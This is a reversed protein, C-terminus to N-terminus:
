SHNRKIMTDVFDIMMNDRYLPKWIMLDFSCDGVDDVAIDILVKKKFIEKQADSPFSNYLYKRLGYLSGGTYSHIVLKNHHNITTNVFSEIFWKDSDSDFMTNIIISEFTDDITKWIQVAPSIYKLDFIYGHRNIMHYDYINKTYHSIGFMPDINIVRIRQDNYVNHYEDIFKPIIQDNQDSIYSLESVASGIGIYQYDVPYGRCYDALLNLMHKRYEPTEYNDLQTIM